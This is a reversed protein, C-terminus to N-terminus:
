KEEHVYPAKVVEYNGGLSEMKRTIRNIALDLETILKNEDFGEITLLFVPSAILNIRLTLDEKLGESLSAKIDDIGGAQSFVKIQSMVKIKKPTFKHRHLKMFAEKEHEELLFSEPYLELTRYVDKDQEYLPYILSEYDLHVANIFDYVAKAHSYNRLGLEKDERTIDRLSVDIYGKASDVNIVFCIQNKGLKVHRSVSKMKHRSVENSPMFAVTRGYELLECKVGGACDIETHEVMVLDGKAPYKAPYFYAM